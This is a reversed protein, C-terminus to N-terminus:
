RTSRENSSIVLTTSFDLRYMANSETREGLLGITVSDGAANAAFPETMLPTVREM